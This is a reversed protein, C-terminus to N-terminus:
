KSEPRWPKDVRWKGAAITADIAVLCGAVGYGSGFCVMPGGDPGYRKLIALTTGDDCLKVLLSIFDEENRLVSTLQPVGDGLAKDL